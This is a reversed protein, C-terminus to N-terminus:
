DPSCYQLSLSGGPHNTRPSRSATVGSSPRCRRMHRQNIRWVARRRTRFPKLLQRFLSTGHCIVCTWWYSKMKVGSRSIQTGTVREGAAVEECKSSFMRTHLTHQIECLRYRAILFAYFLASIQPALKKISSEVPKIKANGTITTQYVSLFIM